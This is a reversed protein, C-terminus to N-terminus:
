IIGVRKQQVKKGGHHAPVADASLFGLPVSVLPVCLPLPPVHPASPFHRAQTGENFSVREFAM